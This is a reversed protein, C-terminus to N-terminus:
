GMDSLAKDAADKDKGDPRFLASGGEGMQEIGERYGHKSLFVKALTANWEGSLGNEALFVAQLSLLDGVLVSFDAHAKKWEQITDKHVGLHLALGELMPFKFSKKTGYVPVDKGKKKVHSVVVRVYQTGLKCEDLYEYGLKVMGPSFKSPRGM